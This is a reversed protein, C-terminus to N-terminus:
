HMYQSRASFYVLDAVSARAYTRVYTDTDMKIDAPSSDGITKRILRFRSLIQDEKAM